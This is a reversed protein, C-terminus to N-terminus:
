SRFAPGAPPWSSVTGLVPPVAWVPQFPTDPRILVVTLGILALGTWEIGTSARGSLERRFLHTAVLGGALLEWARAPLMYFAVSPRWLALGISLGLSILLGSVILASVGARRSLRFAAMLAIPYALYFQWEISLSWTHLLWKTEAVKDFYGAERWYQINSIFLVSAAAHTGIEQYTIPDIMFWGFVALVVILAWLAPVLRQARALWFAALSFRGTELRRIVIETILFGSIVFFVDVGLFGGRAQQSGLHFLLVAAIAVGRLGNIDERFAKAPEVPNPNFGM